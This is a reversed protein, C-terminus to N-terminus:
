RLRVASRLGSARGVRRDVAAALVEPSGIIRVHKEARTVATYLLERTLLESGPPPLIVTVDRFQSGQSRHITMAYVPDAAALQTPHLTRIRGGRRFAVQLAAPTDADVIVVGTDGNFIEAQRDNQTVLLPQGPYRIASDPQVFPHDPLASIWEAVRRSWGQVGWSGERHACLVRHRDLVDLASASDSALAAARLGTAWDIIDARVGALEADNVLEIDTITPDNVLDVAATSDGRNIADALAGIGGRFRHGHRLTVVGHAIRDLDVEDNITQPVITPPLPTVAVAETREVLDALVAGAEVSALQHPDGVLILRSDPRVADLLASMATMSLMSTEDVVIVDHALTNGRGFRPTAGPRWGLMSHVTVARVSPPAVGSAGVAAQLQAAARGTPACLGIRATGGALQDLVAIIRAVTYTKGTGPGGAVVLTSSVAAIRAALRQLANAETQPGFIEDVARDLAAPDVEPRASARAALIERIREEQQFYKHLYLLPGDESEALVLPRLPGADSGRVLPSAELADVLAATDPLLRATEPDDDGIDAIRDLALCTSGFRVARVALAAGIQATEDIPEGCLRTLRQTIQVDAVELVGAENLRALAGDAQAARM